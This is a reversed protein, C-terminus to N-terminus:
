VNVYIPAIHSTLIWRQVTNETTSFGIIGGPGKQDKNITQEIVQDPPLMNFSDATRKCVFNGEKFEKLIEPHTQSLNQQSSWCYTFHRAYNTHDYAHFWKLMSESSSLHLDWDGTRMSKLYDLLTQTMEIFSQWFQAMPGLDGENISAEFSQFSEFLKEAKIMASKMTDKNQKELFMSFDSSTFVETLKATEKNEELWNEFAEFKLRQLAEHVIKLARVAKNYKKGRLVSNTMESGVLNTEVFVDKLGADYFRKCIVAIFVLSAHFGGMRLNIFENMESNKPNLIVELAKAYIAHDFVADASELGIAESKVKIQKLIEQITSMETPPKDISPLYHVSHPEKNDPKTLNHFGTWGPLLPKHLQSAQQRAIIWIFDEKKSITKDTTFNQFAINSIPKPSSRSVSYYPELDSRIGNFSRKNSYSNFVPKQSVPQQITAPKQILIGNTCHMSEGNITEPNHDGNDYVFTGFLGPVVKSPLYNAM